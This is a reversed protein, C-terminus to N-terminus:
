EPAPPEDPRGYLDILDAKTLAEADDVVVGQVVAWAVWESKPANVGPRATPPGPLDTSAAAGVTSLVGKALKEAITEHLPLAMEIVAGAEGRILVTEGSGTM